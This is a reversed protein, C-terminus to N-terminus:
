DGSCVIRIVIVVIVVVGVSVCLRLYITIKWRRVSLFHPDTSKKDSCMRDAQSIQHCETPTATWKCAVIHTETSTCKSISNQLCNHEILKEDEQQCEALERCTEGFLTMTSGIWNFTAMTQSRDFLRVMQVKWKVIHRVISVTFTVNSHPWM